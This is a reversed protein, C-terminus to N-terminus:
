RDNLSVILYSNSRFGLPRAQRVALRLLDPLIRVAHDWRRGLSRGLPHASSGKEADGPMRESTTPRSFSLFRGLPRDNDVYVAGLLKFFSSAVDGRAEPKLDPTLKM